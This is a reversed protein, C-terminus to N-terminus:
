ILRIRGTLLEQMMGQKILRYKNLITENAQVENDLDVLTDALASQESIGPLSLMLESLRNKQINPLGSGVRLSMISPENSKLLYYLFLTNQKTNISYCHGGLWFRTRMFNVYGCSNGGESIILTLAEANYFETYGSPSIGGNMVPYDGHKIFDDANLQEGKQIIAVASLRKTEWEGSFGPLRRKGTLLEQMVGQKINKKKEILKELSTILTDTDTLMSSISDQEERPPLPVVVRGIQPSTLQPVGTSEQIFNVFQNLYEAYFVGNVEINHPHLTLLRGISVYPHDRYVSYGLKGRATVTITNCDDTFYDAFGYLGKNTLANAYIPYRFEDNEYLSSHKPQYDGGAKIDFMDKLQKIRWEDPIVGVETQKYGPKVEM